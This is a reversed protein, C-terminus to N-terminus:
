ASTAADISTYDSARIEPLSDTDNMAQEFSRFRFQSLLLKLKRTFGVRGLGQHIRLSPSLKRDGWPRLSPERSFEDPDIEYPHCYFVPWTSRRKAEALLLRCLLWGPLLRAYGGGSIPWRRGAMTRTTLPFETITADDTLRVRRAEIPWSPIGYRPGAIPFISSDYRFGENALVDLAWLTREGISFVPARFGTVRQGTIDTITQQARRIDERFGAPSIRHVQVHGYGHCAVDHGASQIERVVQPHKEAFKGLIFFTATAQTDQALLDLLRRVNDACYESLPLTNDLTSQGWDEVDVSFILSPKEKTRDQPV